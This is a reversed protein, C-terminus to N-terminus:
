TEGDGSGAELELLIPRHDSPGRRLRRAHTCRVGRVLCRDLRFPVVNQARHTHGRPGVDSFHHLLIPGLTNFDGIIATPGTTSHAIKRLQLRNLIQGHSLHVNAITLDGFELLQAFRTPFRGPMKSSPLKLVNPRASHASSWAGLWHGRGPWPQKYFKGGVHEPLSEIASTAEQMLFLDPQEEAILACIDEAVAGSRHLLNWSIIKLRTMPRDLVTDFVADTKQM